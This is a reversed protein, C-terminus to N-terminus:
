SNMQKKVLEDLADLPSRDIGWQRYLDSLPILSEYVQENDLELLFHAGIIKIDLFAPLKEIAKFFDRGIKKESFTPTISLIKM